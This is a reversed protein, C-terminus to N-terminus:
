GPSIAAQRLPERSAFRGAASRPHEANCRPSHCLQPAFQVIGPTAKLTFRHRHHRSDISVYHIRRSRRTHLVTCDAFSICPTDKAGVERCVTESCQSSPNDCGCLAFAVRRGMDCRQREGRRLNISRWLSTMTTLDDAVYSARSSWLGIPDMAALSTLSSSPVLTIGSGWANTFRSPDFNLDGGNYHVAVGCAPVITNGDNADTSTLLPHPRVACRSM